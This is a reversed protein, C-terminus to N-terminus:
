GRSQAHLSMKQTAFYGLAQDLNGRSVVDVLPHDIPASCLNRANEPVEVVPWKKLCCLFNVSHAQAAAVDLPHRQGIL